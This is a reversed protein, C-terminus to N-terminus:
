RGNESRSTLYMFLYSGAFVVVGLLFSVAAAYEYRQQTFALNFAYLNPTYASGIVQPSIVSMVRPENFLQLTGIISFVTTLVLAPRVLPIRVRWATQWSSAGDVAAAETLEVPVAQLAAFLIIMNYGTFEWTVINALSGLMWSSSTFAPAAWGLARATRTLPSLDPGYLYGWMLAAVVSPVAYPLFITLRITRRALVAGSDLLLALVLALALMLPVQVLFFRLMRAVGSWFQEDVLATAYNSAGVFVRGGVLQTRFLSLYGAYALPLLLFGVFVLLFPALLM